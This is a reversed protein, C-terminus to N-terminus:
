ERSDERMSQWDMEREREDLLDMAQRVKGNKLNAHVEEILNALASIERADSRQKLCGGIILACACLTFMTGCGKFDALCLGPGRGPTPSSVDM